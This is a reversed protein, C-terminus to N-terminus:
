SLPAKSAAVSACVIVRYRIERKKKKKGTQKSPGTQGTNRTHACMYRYMRLFHSDM